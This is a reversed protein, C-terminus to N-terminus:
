GPLSWDRRLLIDTGSLFPASLEVSLLRGSFGSPSPPAKSSRHVTFSTQLAKPGGLVAEHSVSNPNKTPSLTNTTTTTTEERLRRLTHVALNLYIPKSSCREYVSKEEEVAQSLCLRCIVAVTWHTPNLTWSSVYYTMESFLRELCNIASTSVVLFVSVICCM